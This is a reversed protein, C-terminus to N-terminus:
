KGALVASIKKAPRRQHGGGLAHRGRHHLRLHDAPPPLDEAHRDPIEHLQRVHRAVPGPGHRKGLLGARREQRLHAAGTGRAPRQPLLGRRAGPRHRLPEEALGRGHRPGHRAGHPHLHLPRGPRHLRGQARAPHHERAPRRLRDRLVPEAHHPEPHQRGAGARTGRQRPHLTQPRGPRHRPRQRGAMRGAHRDPHLARLRRRRRGRHAQRGTAGSRRGPIGHGYFRRETRRPVVIHNKAASKMAVPEEENARRARSPRRSPCAATRRPPLQGPRLRQTVLERVVAQQKEVLQNADVVLFNFETSM